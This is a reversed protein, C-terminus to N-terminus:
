ATGIRRYISEIISYAGFSVLGLAVIGLLISGFTQGQLAQLAGSLGRAESPDNQIAATIFFGGMIVFVTGRAFLGFRSLPTIIKQENQDMDFRREFRATWAKIGHAIGVGIFALGVAGVLWAGYPQSLLRATWEQESEGSGGSGWGFILSVAAFALGIHTVASVALGSRITLGKLDTGHSDADMVAQVARWASYCLLGAAVMALLIKGFPAGLVEVLAGESDTTEGGRGIAALAALAGVIVYIVGRAAYGVRAVLRLNDSSGQDM